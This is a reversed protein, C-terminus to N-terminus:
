DNFYKKEYEEIVIALAEMYVLQIFNPRKLNMLEDLKYCCDDYQIRNEIKLQM